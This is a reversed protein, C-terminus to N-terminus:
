VCARCLVNFKEHWLSWRWWVCNRIMAVSLVPAALQHTLYAGCVCVCVGYRSGVSRSASQLPLLM